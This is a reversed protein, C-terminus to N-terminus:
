VGHQTHAHYRMLISPHIEGCSACKEAKNWDFELHSPAETSAAEPTIQPEPEDKTIKIDIGSETRITDGVKIEHDEKMAEKEPIVPHSKKMHAPIIHPPMRRGCVTCVNKKTEAM